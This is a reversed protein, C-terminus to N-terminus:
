VDYIAANHCVARMKPPNRFAVQLYNKVPTKIIAGRIMGILQRRSAM